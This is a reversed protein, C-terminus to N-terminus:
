KSLSVWTPFFTWEWSMLGVTRNQDLSMAQSRQGVNFFKILLPCGNTLNKIYPGRAIKFSTIQKIQSIILLACTCTCYMCVFVNQQKQISTVESTRDRLITAMTAESTSTSKCQRLLISFTGLPIWPSFDLLSVVLELFRTEVIPACALGLIPPRFLTDPLTLTGQQCAVGTAFAGHFGSMIRHRDLETDLDHFQHFTQNTPFDSNTLPWFTM